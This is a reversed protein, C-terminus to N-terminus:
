LLNRDKGPARYGPQAGAHRRRQLKERTNGKAGRLRAEEVDKPPPAPAVIAIVWM